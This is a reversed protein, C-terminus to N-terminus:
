KVGVEKLLRAFEEPPLKKLRDMMEKASDHSIKRDKAPKRGVEHKDAYPLKEIGLFDALSGRSGRPTPRQQDAEVKALHEAQGQLFHEHRRKEHINSFYHDVDRMLPHIHLKYAALYKAYVEKLHPMEAEITALRLRAMAEKEEMIKRIMFRRANESQALEKSTPM